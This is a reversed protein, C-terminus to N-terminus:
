WRVATLDKVVHGLQLRCANICAMQKRGRRKGVDLTNAIDASSIAATTLVATGALLPSVVLADM